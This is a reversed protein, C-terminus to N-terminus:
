INEPAVEFSTSYQFNLLTARIKYTRTIGHPLQNQLNQTKKHNHFYSKFDTNYFTYLQTARPLILDQGSSVSKGNPSAEKKIGATFEAERFVVNTIGIFNIPHSYVPRFTLLLLKSIMKPISCTCTKRSTVPYACCGPRDWLELYSNTQASNKDNSKAGPIDWGQTMTNSDAVFFVSCVSCISFIAWIGNDENLDPKSEKRVMRKKKSQSHWHFYCLWILWVNQAKINFYHLTTWIIVWVVTKCFDQM